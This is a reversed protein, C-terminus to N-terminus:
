KKILEFFTPRDSGFNSDRGTHSGEAADNGPSHLAQRSSRTGVSLPIDDEIITHDVAKTPLRILAHPIQQKIGALRIIEFDFTELRVEWCGFKNTTEPVDLIWFLTQHYQCLTYGVVKLYFRLLLNAWIVALYERDTTDLIRRQENVTRSWYGMRQPAETKRTRYLSMDCKKNCPDTNLTFKGKQKQLSLM